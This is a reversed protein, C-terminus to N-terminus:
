SNPWSPPSTPTGPQDEETGIPPEFPALKAVALGSAAGHLALLAGSSFAISTRRGARKPSSRRSTTSKANSPTRSPTAATGAAAATTTGDASQVNGESTTM